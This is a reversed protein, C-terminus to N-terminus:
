GVRISGNIKRRQDWWKWKKPAINLRVRIKQATPAKVYTEWMEPGFFNDIVRKLGEHDTGMEESVEAEGEVIVGRFPFEHDDVCLTIAPNRRLNKVTVADSGTSIFFSGDEPNFVYVLPVIHPTGNKNITSARVIRPEILFEDMETPRDAM